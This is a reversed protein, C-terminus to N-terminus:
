PQTRLRQIGTSLSRGDPLLADVFWFWIHGPALAITDPLVVATDAGATTWVVRGDAEQLTLSYSAGAGASRWAFELSGPAIEAAPAPSVVALHPETTSGSRLASQRSANRPLALVLLVGAAAVAVPTLVRIWRGRDYSHQLRRVGSLERRCEPCSALHLEAQRREASPLDDDLYGALAETSLHAPLSPEPTNM